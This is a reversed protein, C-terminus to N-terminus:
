SGFATCNSKIDKGANNYAWITFSAHRKEHSMIWVDCSKDDANKKVLCTWWYMYSRRGGFGIVAVAYVLKLAWLSEEGSIILGTEM